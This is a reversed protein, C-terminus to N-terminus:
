NCLYLVRSVTDCRLTGCIYEMDSHICAFLRINRTLCRSLSILLIVHLTHARVFCVIRGAVNQSRGGVIWMSM